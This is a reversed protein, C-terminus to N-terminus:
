ALHNERVGWAPAYILISGRHRRRISSLIFVTLCRSFLAPVKLDLTYEPLRLRPEPSALRANSTALTEYKAVRNANESVSATIGSMRAAIV